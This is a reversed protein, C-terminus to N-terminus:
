LKDMEVYLLADHFSMERNNSIVHNRCYIREAIDNYYYVMKVLDMLYFNELDSVYINYIVNDHELTFIYEPNFDDFPAYRIWEYQDLLQKELISLM